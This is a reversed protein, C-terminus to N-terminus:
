TIIKPLTVIVDGTGTATATATSTATASASHNTATATAPAHAEAITSPTPDQALAPAVMCLLVFVCFLMFRGFVYMSLNGDGFWSLIETFSGVDAVSKSLREVHETSKISPHATELSCRLPSIPRSIQKGM